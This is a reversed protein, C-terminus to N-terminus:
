KGTQDTLKALWDIIPRGREDLYKDAAQYYATLYDRLSGAPLCRRSLQSQVQDTDAGSFNIDGLTLAAVINRALDADTEVLNEPAIDAANLVQHLHAEIDPRHERYHDIAQSFAQPIREPPSYSGPVTMLREVVQPAQELREALFHGPIRTRLAPWQNFIRGGFASPVGERQLLHAM